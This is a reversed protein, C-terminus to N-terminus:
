GHSKVETRLKRGTTKREGGEHEIWNLALNLFVPISRAGTEWRSITIVSVGLAKSLEAQSYQNRARWQRLENTTMPVM